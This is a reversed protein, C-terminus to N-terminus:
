GATFPRRWLLPMADDWPTEDARYAGAFSRCVLRTCFGADCLVGDREVAALCAVCGCIVLEEFGDGIHVTSERPSRYTLRVSMTWGFGHASRDQLWPQEIWLVSLATRHVREVKHHRFRAGIAQVVAM